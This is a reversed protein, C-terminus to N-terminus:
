KKIINKPDPVFDFTDGIHIQHNAFWGKSMELAYKAPRSSQYKPINEQQESVVPIMEQTDILRRSKDFFGISLPIFTNKMWFHRVEEEDYQFLMGENQALKKRHMLGRRQQEESKALEINIVRNNIKIKTKSFVVQAFAVNLYFLVIWVLAILFGIKNKTVSKLKM